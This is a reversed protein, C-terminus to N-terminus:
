AFELVRYPSLLATVTFPVEDATFRVLTVAERNEYWTGILIKMAALIPAPVTAYGAVYKIVVGEPHVISVPWISGPAPTITADWNDASLVYGAPDLTVLAGTADLYQVSTISQVPGRGLHLAYRYAVSGSVPTGPLMLPDVGYVPVGLVGTAGPFGPLALQWTQQPVSHGTIEEVWQRAATILSSILSDDDVMDSDVRLHQKADDLSLPEKDPPVSLTLRGAM